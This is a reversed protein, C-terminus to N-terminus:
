DHKFYFAPQAQMPLYMSGILTFIAGTVILALRSSTMKYKYHADDAARDMLISAHTYPNIM